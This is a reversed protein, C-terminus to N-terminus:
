NLLETAGDCCSKQILVPSMWGWANRNTEVAAAAAAAAAAVAADSVATTRANPPNLDNWEPLRERDRSGADRATKREWLEV